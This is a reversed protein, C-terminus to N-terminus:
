SVIKVTGGDNWLMGASLGFPSTPMDPLAFYCLGTDSAVTVYSAAITLLDAGISVFDSTTSNVAVYADLDSGASMWVQSGGSDDTTVAELVVRNAYTTGTGPLVYRGAHLAGYVNDVDEVDDVFTVARKSIGPDYDVWDFWNSPFDAATPTLLNIGEATIATARTNDEAKVIVTGNQLKVGDQAIRFWEGTGSEIGPGGVMGVDGPDAVASLGSIDGLRLFTSLGDSWQEGRMTGVDIYASNARSVIGIWGEGDRGYDIVASGAYFTLSDLERVQEDVPVCTYEFHTGEDSVATVYARLEMPVPYGADTTNLAPFWRHPGFPEGVGYARREALGRGAIVIQDGEELLKYHGSKPDELTIAFTQGTRFTFVGDTSDVLQDDNSAVWSHQFTITVDSRLVGGSKSVLIDGTSVAVEELVFTEAYFRDFLAREADIKGASPTFRIGTTDLGVGGQVFAYPSRTQMVGTTGDISWLPLTVDGGVSLADGISADDTVTIDDGVTLDTAVSVSAGFTGVGTVNLTGGFVGNGGFSGGGVVELSTGATRFTEANSTYFILKDTDLELYKRWTIDAGAALGTPSYLMHMTGDVGNTAVMFAHVGTNGSAFHMAGTAMIDSYSTDPAVQYANWALAGSYDQSSTAITANTTTTNRWAFFNEEADAYTPGTAAGVALRGHVIINTNTTDAILIPTGAANQIIGLSTTDSAPLIGSSTAVTMDGTLTIADAVLLDTNVEAIHATGDAQLRWGTITAGVTMTESRVIDGHYHVGTWHPSFDEDLSWTFIQSSTQLLVGDGAAQALLGLTNDATAGVLSYASASLTHDSASVISHQRNHHANANGTHTDFETDTIAWPAQSEDLTGTHYAGDLAHATLSGGSGGGSVTSIRASGGPTKDIRRQAQKKPM